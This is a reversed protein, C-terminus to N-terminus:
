DYLDSSGSIAGCACLVLLHGTRFFLAFAIKLFLHIWLSRDKRLGEESVRMEISVPFFIFIFVIFKFVLM